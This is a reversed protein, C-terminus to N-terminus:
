HVKLIKTEAEGRTIKNIESFFEDTIGAPINVIAKLSGDGLWEERTLNYKKLMGFSHSAYNVPIIVEIERTEFKIPLIIRIKKLVDDLQQEATKGEDIRVKAEEFAAEIRQPPHPVGTRPDVANRHIIAVLKKRKEEREQALHKSTVPVHGDKIIRLFVEEVNDTGFIRKVDNTSAKLGKKADKFVDEVAVVDWVSVSKGKRLELAKDADVLIEFHCGEKDLRAVVARDVDVM